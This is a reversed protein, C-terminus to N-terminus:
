PTPSRWVMPAISAAAVAAPWGRWLGVSGLGEHLFLLPARDADGAVDLYEVRGGPVAVLPLDGM